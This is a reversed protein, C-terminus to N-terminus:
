RTKDQKEDKSKSNYEKINNTLNKDLDKDKNKAKKSKNNDTSIFKELKSINESNEYKKIEAVQREIDDENSESKSSIFSKFLEKFNFGEREHGRVVMVERLSM